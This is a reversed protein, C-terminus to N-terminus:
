KLTWSSESRNDLPLNYTMSYTESEPCFATEYWEVNTEPQSDDSLHYNKSDLGEFRIPVAGVGGKISVEIVPYIVSIILPYTSLVNGGNVDITLNNGVAERLATKWSKPNEELHQKFSQNPGYYDDASYPFTVWEVDLEVSDGPNFETIGKNPTVMVDVYFDGDGHDQRAYLSVKPVLRIVGNVTSQYKRIILCKWANGFGKQDSKFDSEPIAIWWPASGSGFTKSMKMRDIFFEGVKLTPPIEVEQILGDCNGLAVKKCFWGEWGAAGGVRFLCSGGTNPEYNVALTSNFDYRIKQITRACDDARATHVTANVHVEAHVGYYGSYRVETLCPGQSLYGVKM